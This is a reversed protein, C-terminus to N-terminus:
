ESCRRYARMSWDAPNIHLLREPRDENKAIVGPILESRRTQGEGTCRLKLRYSTDGIL